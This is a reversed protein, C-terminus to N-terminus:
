RARGVIIGSVSAQTRLYALFPTKVVKGAESSAHIMFSDNGGSPDAIGVHSVDLGEKETTFAIIDGTKILPLVREVAALPLYADLSKELEEETARIRSFVEDSNLRPYRERYRTMYFIEKRYPLGGLESTVDRLIGRQCHYKLWDCFYHFRNTYEVVGNRYRLNRVTSTFDDWSRRFDTLILAIALCQEVFTFCDFSRLNVTLREEGETELPSAEYSAELFFSAVEALLSGRDKGQPDISDMVSQYVVVDELRVM